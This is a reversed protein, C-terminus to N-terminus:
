RDSTEGDTADAPSIGLIELIVKCTAEAAHGPNYLLQERVAARAAAREDPHDLSRQVVSQLDAVREVVIGADRGCNYRLDSRGARGDINYMEPLTEDFFRPTDFFVVPCDVMIAEFSVSSVDTVLADAAAVLSTVDGGRVHRFHAHSELADFARKWDIGGTAKTENPPYYSMPHLKVIVNVDMRCLEAAIEPGDTRLSTHEEWSPAYLVTKRGPDLGLDSLVSERRYDGNILADSKPYGVECCWLRRAAPSQRRLDDFLRKQLPGILFAGDLFRWQREVFTGGKAPLGHFTCLRPAKGFVPVISSQHTTLFLDYARLFGSVWSSFFGAPRPRIDVLAQKLGRIAFPRAAVYIRVSESLDGPLRKWFPLVFPLYGEHDIYFVLVKFGRRRWRALEWNTIVAPVLTGIIRLPHCAAFRIGLSIRRLFM